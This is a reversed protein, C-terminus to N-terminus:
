CHCTDGECNPCPLSDAKQADRQVPELAESVLRNAIKRGVDIVEDIFQDQISYLLEDKQSPDLNDLKIFNEKNLLLIIVEQLTLSLTSM